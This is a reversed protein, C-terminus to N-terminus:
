QIKSSLLYSNYSFHLYKGTETAQSSIEINLILTCNTLSIENINKSIETLYCYIEKFKSTINIVKNLFVVTFLVNKYNISIHKFLTSVRYM